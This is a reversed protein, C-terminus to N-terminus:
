QRKTPIIIGHIIHKRILHEFMHFTIGILGNSLAMANKAGTTDRHQGRAENIGDM